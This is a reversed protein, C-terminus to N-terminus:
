AAVERHRVTTADWVAGEQIADKEAIAKAEQALRWNADLLEAILRAPLAAVVAPPIANLMAQASGPYAGIQSLALARKVRISNDTQNTM